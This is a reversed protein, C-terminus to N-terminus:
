QTLVQCRRKSLLSLVINYAQEISYMQMPELDDCVTVWIRGEHSEVIGNVKPVFIRKSSVSKSACLPVKLTHGIREKYFQNRSGPGDGFRTIFDEALMQYVM